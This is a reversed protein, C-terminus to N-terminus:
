ELTCATRGERERQRDQLVESSSSLHSLLSLGRLLVYTQDDAGVLCSVVTQFELGLPASVRKQGRHVSPIGM